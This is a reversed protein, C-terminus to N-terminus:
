MKVSSVRENLLYAYVISPMAKQVEWSCNRYVVSQLIVFNKRQYCVKACSLREKLQSLFELKRRSSLILHRFALCVLELIFNPAVLIIKMLFLVIRDMRGRTLKWFTLRELMLQIARWRSLELM